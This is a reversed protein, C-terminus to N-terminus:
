RAANAANRTTCSIPRAHSANSRLEVLRGGLALLLPQRSAAPALAAVKTLADARWANRALVSWVGTAPTHGHAGLILGPFRATARDRVTSTALAAERLGGLPGIFGDADRRAVSLTLAGFARLDGGANVWGSTVGARRLAAIARDVAYGKAIGDV